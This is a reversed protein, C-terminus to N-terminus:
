TESFPASQLLVLSDSDTRVVTDGDKVIVRNHTLRQKLSDLHMMEDHYRLYDASMNDIRDLLSSVDEAADENQVLFSLVQYKLGQFYRLTFGSLIFLMVAVFLIINKNFKM